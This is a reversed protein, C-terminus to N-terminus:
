FPEHWKAMADTLSTLLIMRFIFGSLAAPESLIRGSNTFNDAM